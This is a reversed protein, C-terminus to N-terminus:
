PALGDLYTRVAARIIDEASGTGTLLSELQRDVMLMALGHELAWLGLVIPMVPAERILGERQCSVVKEALGSLASTAAVLLMPHEHRRSTSRAFMVRYHDPYQSAFRVYALAAAELKARPERVPSVERAMVGSLSRFGEEAVAALLAEKSEFHWYPANRSVGARKGVARLTVAGIGEERLLALAADLVARRVDDPRAGAAAGKAAKAPKAAKAAPKRPM